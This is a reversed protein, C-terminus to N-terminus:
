GSLLLAVVIAPPSIWALKLGARPAHPLLMALLLGGVALLGFWTVPGAQWGYAAVASAFSVLLLVVGAARIGIRRLGAIERGILQRQHKSMALCLLVLGSYALCLALVNM